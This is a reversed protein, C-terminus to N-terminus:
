SSTELTRVVMDVNVVEETSHWVDFDSIHAMTAYCMEAERALFVESISDNWYGHGSRYM